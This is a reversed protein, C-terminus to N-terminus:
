RPGMNTDNEVPLVSGGVFRTPLRMLQTIVKAAEARSVAAYPRFTGDPYGSLVGNVSLKIISANSWPNTAPTIDSYLLEHLDLTDTINTYREAMVAFEERTVFRDPEFRTATVGSVLQANRAAAVAGNAWHTATDDFAAASNNESLGALRTLLVAAEARTLNDDPAFKTASVGKILGQDTLDAIYSGAWHGEIDTFSGGGLWVSFSDWLWAPEQGLAWCGVGRIDYEQVLSLKREFSRANEYWVDYVGPTLKAGGWTTLNDHKGVTITVRACENKEDYWPKSGTQSILFEIDSVTWASGQVTNTWYRGYFPIGLMLKDAPVHKLGYKISNEIFKYSAVPGASGGNYAEDYTMMFVCDCHMALEAYDYGGQWGLDTGYPNAAVCVTLTTGQPMVERLQSIFSVFAARDDKNINQLDINLGDLAYETVAAALFAAAEASRSLMARAQARNWHNSLFPTVEIGRAQMTSILLPDPTKTFIVSGGASTEFYDPAVVSVSYGTKNVRNIYTQTTGGYLYMLSERTRYTASVNPMLAAVVMIATLFLSARRLKRM